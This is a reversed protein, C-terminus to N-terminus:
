KQYPELYYSPVGFGGRDVIEQTNKILIEKTQESPNQIENITLRVGAKNALQQLIEPESM